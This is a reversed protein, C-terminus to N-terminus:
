TINNVAEELKDIAKLAEKFRYRGVLKKVEALEKQVPCSKLLEDLADVQKGAGFSNNELIQKIESLTSAVQVKDLSQPAEVASHEINDIADTTDLQRISAVVQSLLTRAAELLLEWEGAREEKIATELTAVTQYLEVAGITGSAGKLAHAAERAKQTDGAHLLGAIEEVADAHGTGFKKLLRILSAQNGGVRTLVSAVDIGPLEPLPMERALKVKEQGKVPPTKIVPRKVFKIWKVLTAFLEEPDLPKTIHDNMGAQLSRERDGSM